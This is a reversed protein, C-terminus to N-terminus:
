YVNFDNDRLQSLYNNGRQKREGGERSAGVSGGVEIGWKELGFELGGAPMYDHGLVQPVSNSTLCHCDSIMFCQGLLSQCAQDMRAHIFTAQTLTAPM